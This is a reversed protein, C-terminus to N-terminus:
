TTLRKIIIKLKQTTHPKKKVFKRQEPYYLRLRLQKTICTPNSKETRLKVIIFNYEKKKQEVKKNFIFLYKYFFKLILSIM